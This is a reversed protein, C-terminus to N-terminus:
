NAAFGNINFIAKFIGGTSNEVGFRFEKVIFHDYNCFYKM